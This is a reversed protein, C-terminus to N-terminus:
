KFWGHFMKNGLWFCVFNILVGALPIWYWEVAEVFRQQRLSACVMVTIVMSVLWIYRSVHRARRRELFLLHQVQRSSYIPEDEWKRDPPADNVEAGDARQAQAEM